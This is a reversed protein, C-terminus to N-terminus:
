EIAGINPTSDRPNGFFDVSPVPIESDGARGADILPSGAAPTFDEPKPSAVPEGDMGPIAAFGPDGTVIDNAGEQWQDIDAGLLNFDGRHEAADFSGGIHAFNISLIVNNYLDLDSVNQGVSLGGYAGQRRGWLVNNVLKVGVADEIYAVFGTEPNYFINNALTINECYESPGNGLEDAWNGFFLVSTSAIDYAFNGILESNTVDYLEFGDSHGNSCPGCGGDTGCGHLARVTNGRFSVNNAGGVVIGDDAIDHVVSGAVIVDSGSVSMGACAGDSHQDGSLTFNGDVEVNSFVVGNGEIEVVTSQFEGIVRLAHRGDFDYHGTEFRLNSFAAEGAAYEAQWGTETGHDDATARIVRIPADGPDDFAYGPYDGAAIFYVHGRVLTEPLEPLAQEWDSGDGNAGARVFHCDDVCSVPPAGASGASGASGGSASSGGSGAAGGSASAGSAGASGSSGGAGGSEDDSGCASVLAIVALAVWSRRVMATSSVLQRRVVM